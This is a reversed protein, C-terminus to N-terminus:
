MLDHFLRFSFTYSVQNKECFSVSREIQGYLQISRDKASDDMNSTSQARLPRAKCPKSWSNPWPLPSSSSSPIVSPYIGHCPRRVPLQLKHLHLYTSSSSYVSMTRKQNKKQTQKKKPKSSPLSFPFM